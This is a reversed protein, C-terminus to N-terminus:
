RHSSALEITPDSTEPVPDETPYNNLRQAPIVSVLTMLSEEPAGM